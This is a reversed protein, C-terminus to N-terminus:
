SCARWRLGLRHDPDVRQQHLGSTTQILGGGGSISSLEAVNATAVRVSASADDKRAAVPPLLWSADPRHHQHDVALYVNLPRHHSMEFM